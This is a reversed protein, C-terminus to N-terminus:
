QKRQFYFIFYFLFALPHSVEILTTLHERTPHGRNPSGFDLGSRNGKKLHKKLNRTLANTVLGLSVSYLRTANLLPVSLVDVGAVVGNGSEVLGDYCTQQNTVIGSLFTRVRNVLEDNMTEASKLEESITHLYEVNLESLEHCDEM